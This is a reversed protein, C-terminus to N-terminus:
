EAKGGQQLARASLAARALQRIAESTSAVRNAHQWERIAELEETPIVLQFREAIEVGLRPRAM